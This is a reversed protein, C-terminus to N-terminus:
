SKNDPFFDYVFQMINKVEHLTYKNKLKGRLKAEIKGKNWSRNKKYYNELTEEELFKTAIEEALKEYDETGFDMGKVGELWVQKRLQYNNWLGDYLSIKFIVFGIWANTKPERVGCRVYVCEGLKMGRMDKLDHTCDITELIYHATQIDRVIPAVFVLHNRRQRLAEQLILVQSSARLSGEGFEKPDEDRMFADGEESTKSISLIDSDCFGINDTTFKPSLATCLKIAISSKLTGVEGSLVLIAQDKSKIDDWFDQTIDNQFCEYFSPDRQVRMELKRLQLKTHKFKLIDSMIILIKSEM